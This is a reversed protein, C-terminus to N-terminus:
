IFIIYSYTNFVTQQVRRWLWLLLFPLFLPFPHLYPTPLSPLFSTFTRPHFTLRTHPPSIFTFLHLLSSPPSSILAASVFILRLLPLHLLFLLIFSLHMFTESPSLLKLSVLLVEISNKLICQSPCLTSFRTRTM